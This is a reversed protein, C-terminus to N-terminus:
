GDCKRIRVDPIRRSQQQVFGRYVADARIREVAGCLVQSEPDGTEFVAAYQRLGGEVPAISPGGVPHNSGKRDFDQRFILRRNKTM